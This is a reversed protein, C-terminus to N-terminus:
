GRPEVNRERSSGLLGAPGESTLAVAWPVARPRCIWVVLLPWALELQGASM